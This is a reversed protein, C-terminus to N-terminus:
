RYQGAYKEVKGINDKTVFGPGVLHAAPRIRRSGTNAFRKQTKPNAKVADM